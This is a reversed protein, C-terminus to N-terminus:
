NILTQVTKIMDNNNEDLLQQIHEANTFGMDLLQKVESSVTPATSKDDDNSGETVSEAIPIESGKKTLPPEIDMSHSPQSSVASEPKDESGVFIDVWVRQGFRTGDVHCLKWFSVYRGPKIPATMDVAVDIEEDPSTAPVPVSSVSSVKDGGVHELCTGEPWVIKGENRLKWIKVFKQGPAMAMGDPITVDTVFRALFGNQQATKRHHHNWSNQAERRYPCGRGRRPLPRLITDFSHTRDHVDPLVRCVECLDYDECTLCKYRVGHIVEDCSDCIVGSHVARGDSRTQYAQSLGPIKFILPFLQTLLPLLQPILQQITPTALLQSVFQEIQPRQPISPQSPPEPTSVTSSSTDLGLNQFMSALDAINAQQTQASQQPQGFGGFM